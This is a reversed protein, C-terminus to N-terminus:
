KALQQEAQTLIGEGRLRYDDSMVADKEVPRTFQNFVGASMVGEVVDTEYRHALLFPEGLEVFAAPSDLAGDLVRLPIRAVYYVEGDDAFKCDFFGHDYEWGGGLQFQLPALAESLRALSM